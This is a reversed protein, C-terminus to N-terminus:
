SRSRPEPLPRQAAAATATAREVRRWAMLVLPLLVVLIWSRFTTEAVYYADYPVLGAMVREYALHLGARPVLLVLCLAQIASGLGNPMGRTRVWAFLPILLVMDYANCRFALPAAFLVLPLLGAVARRNGAADREFALVLVLAAGVLVGIATVAALDLSTFHALLNAIGVNIHGTAPNNASWRAAADLYAGLRVSGVWVGLGAIVANAAAGLALVALEGRALLFLAYPAALQPKIAALGLALGATVIRGHELCVASLVLFFLIILSTQGITLVSITPSLTLAFCWVALRDCADLANAYLAHTTLAVVGVLAATSVVKWCALAVSWPAAGLAMAFPIWAPPYAFPLDRSVALVPPSDLSDWMARYAVPDYPSAGHWVAKGAVYSVYLDLGDPPFWLAFLGGAVFYFVALVLVARYVLHRLRYAEVM